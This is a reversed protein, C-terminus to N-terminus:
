RLRAITEIMAAVNEVPTGPVLYNSVGVVTKGFRKGEEVADSMSFTEVAPDFTAVTIGESGAPFEFQAEKGFCSSAVANEVIDDLRNPDSTASFGIRGNHIVRLGIGFANKRESNKLKGAEFSVDHASTEMSFVEAADVKRKAKDLLQELM